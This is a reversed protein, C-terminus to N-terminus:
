WTNLYMDCNNSSKNNSMFIYYDPTANILANNSIPSSKQKINSFLQQIVNQQAESSVKQERPHHCLRKSQLSTENEENIRKENVNKESKSKKNKIKRSVHRMVKFGHLLLKKYIRYQNLSCLPKKIVM